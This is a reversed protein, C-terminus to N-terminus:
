TVMFRGRTRWTLTTLRCCFGADTIAKYEEHMADAIANLFAEDSAYYANGM